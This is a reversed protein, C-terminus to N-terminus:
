AASATGIGHLDLLALGYLLLWESGMAWVFYYWGWVSCAAGVGHLVLQM